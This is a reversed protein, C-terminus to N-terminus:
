RDAQVARLEDSAECVFVGAQRSGLAPQGYTLKVGISEGGSRDAPGSIM